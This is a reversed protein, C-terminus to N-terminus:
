VVKAGRRISTGFAAGLRASDIATPRLGDGRRSAPLKISQLLDMNNGDCKDREYSRQRDPHQASVKQMSHLMPFASTFTPPGSPARPGEVHSLVPPASTCDRSLANSVSRRRLHILPTTNRALFLLIAQCDLPARM